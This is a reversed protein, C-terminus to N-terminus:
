RTFNYNRFTQRLQRSNIDVLAVRQSVRWDQLYKISPDWRSCYTGKSRHFSDRARAVCIADRLFRGTMKRILDRTDLRTIEVRKAFSARSTPEKKIKFRELAITQRKKSWQFWHCALFSPRISHRFSPCTNRDQLTESDLGIFSTAPDNGDHDSRPCRTM